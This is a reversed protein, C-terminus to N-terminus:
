YLSARVGQGADLREGLLISQHALTCMTLLRISVTTFFEHFATSKRFGADAQLPAFSQAVGILTAIVLTKCLRRPQSM